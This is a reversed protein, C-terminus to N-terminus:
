AGGASPGPRDDLGTTSAPPPPQPPETLGASAAFRTGLATFAQDVSGDTFVNHEGPASVESSPPVGVGPNRTAAAPWDIAVKDPRRADVFGPLVAEVVPLHRAYHPAQDLKLTSEYPSAGDQRVIITLQTKKALGGLVKVLGIGTIELTAPVGKRQWKALGITEDVIGGAGDDKVMKWKATNNEAPIGAAGLTAAWDIMADDGLVAVVVPMGLRVYGEPQLRQRIAFMGGGGAAEVQVVYDDLRIPNEDRTQTVRIAAIRGSHRSGRALVSNGDNRSFWGMTVETQRVDNHVMPSSGYVSADAGPRWTLAVHGNAAIRRAKGSSARTFM